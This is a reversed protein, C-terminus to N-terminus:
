LWLSRYFHGSRTCTHSISLPSWRKACHTVQATLSGRCIFLWCIKSIERPVHGVTEGGRKLTVVFPDESNGPKREVVTLEEGLVPTWAVHYVHFGRVTSELVFKDAM